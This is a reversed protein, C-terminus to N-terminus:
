NREELTVELELLKEGRKVTVKVKQGPKYKRLAEAFDELGHIEIDGMKVLVDKPKIGARAAPGDEAVGEILVGDVDTATYSPISGFYAMQGETRQQRQPRRPRVNVFEPREELETVRLVVDHVASVIRVMGEYNIKEPDDSPRHYDKHLDTFFHLVPIKKAYFSSHDSPGFGTPVMKLKFGYTQGLQEIWKSFQPSTGTGYVVLKDDTLRGVMDLNIMAVIKELPVTPHNVFYQSGILGREEATFLIFLVSRGLPESRESLLRALELVAATGSANDDAGNHVARVGPALSGPGGYGVHDYHAGVVVFEDAHPGHGPLVALVNRVRASETVLKCQFSVKIGDLERSRPKLDEDIADAIEELKGLGAAELLQDAVARTIHFLPIRAGRGFGGYGFEVLRDEEKRLTYPDTVFIVASAGLSQALRAKTVLASHRTQRSGQFPGDTGEVGQRPERRMILVAKGKVDIGEYDNYKYEPARIGYGAFVLPVEGEGSGGFSLVQFDTEHKLVLSKGEPLTFCLSPTGDLKRGVPVPLWQFYTNDEGAPKLGLAQFRDAIYEAAQELGETGVGRGEREDAALWAVDQRLREVSPAPRDSDKPVEALSLGTLAVVCVFFWPIRWRMTPIRRM